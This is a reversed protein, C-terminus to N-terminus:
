IDFAMTTEPRVAQLADELTQNDLFLCLHENLKRAMLRVPCTAENPCTCREASSAEACPLPALNGELKRLVEGLTIESPSRHLMYGGGVGRKSSLIGANRLALLIQELFKVPINERHSLDQIQHVQHRPARAIAFLARLAYETKKSFRM